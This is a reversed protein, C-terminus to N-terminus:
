DMDVQMRIFHVDALETDLSIVGEVDEYFPNDGASATEEYVPNGRLSRYILSEPAMWPVPGINPDDTRRRYNLRIVPGTETNERTVRVALEPLTFENPNTVLAYEVITPIDDGDPDGIPSAINPDELEAESFHAAMFAEFPTMEVDILVAFSRSSTYVGDSVRVTISASGSYLASTVFSLTRTDGTGNVALDLVLEPNDTEALVVLDGPPTQADNIVILVDVPSAPPPTQDELPAITPPTNSGGGGTGALIDFSASVDGIQKGDSGFQYYIWDVKSFNLSVNETLRDEGGSGGTSYSTVLVDRLRYELYTGSNNTVEMVIDDLHDGRAMATMLPASAKDVWKTLSLDQLRATGAERGGGTHTTGSNSLGASVALVDIWQEHGRDTAEGEINPIRVFIASYGLNVMLLGLLVLVPRKLKFHCGPVTM